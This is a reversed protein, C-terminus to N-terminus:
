LVFESKFELSRFSEWGLEQWVSQERDSYNPIKLVIVSISDYLIYCISVPKKWKTCHRPSEALNNNKDSTQEKKNTLLIGNLPQVVM